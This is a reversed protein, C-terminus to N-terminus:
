SDGHALARDCALGLLRGDLDAEIQVPRAEGVDRGADAKEVMHEILKRTM